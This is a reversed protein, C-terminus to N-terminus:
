RRRWRTHRSPSNAKSGPGARGYARLVRDGCREVRCVGPWDLLLGELIEAQALHPEFSVELTSPQSIRGEHVPVGHRRLHVILCGLWATGWDPSRADASEM